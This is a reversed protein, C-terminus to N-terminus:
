LQETQFEFVPAKQKRQKSKSVDVTIDRECCCKRVTMGLVANDNSM